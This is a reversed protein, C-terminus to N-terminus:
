AERRAEIRLPLAWEVNPAHLNTGILTPVADGDQRVSIIKNIADGTGGHNLCYGEEGQTTRRTMQVIEEAILAGARVIQLPGGAIDAATVWILIDVLCVYRRSRANDEPGMGRPVIAVAPSREAASRSPWWTEFLAVDPLDSTTLAGGSATRRAGLADNLTDAPSGSGEYTGDELFERLAELVSDYGGLTSM